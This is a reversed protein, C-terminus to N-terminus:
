IYNCHLWRIGIFHASDQTPLSGFNHSCSVHVSATMVQAKVNVGGRPILVLTPLGGTELTSSSQCWEEYLPHDVSFPLYPQRKKADISSMKSGFEGLKVYNLLCFPMISADGLSHAEILAICERHHVAMDYAVLYSLFHLDPYSVAVCDAQSTLRLFVAASYPCAIVGQVNGMMSKCLGRHGHWHARQCKKSCYFVIRCAACRHTHTRKSEPKIM